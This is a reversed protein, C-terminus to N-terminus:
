SPSEPDFSSLRRAAPASTYVLREFGTIWLAAGLRAFPGCVRCGRRANEWLNEVATSLPTSQMFVRCVAAKECGDLAHQSRSRSAAISAARASCSLPAPRLTSCWISSVASLRHSSTDPRSLPASLSAVNPVQNPSAAPADSVSSANASATGFSKVRSHISPWKRPRIRAATCPRSRARAGSGASADAVVHRAGSGPESPAGSSCGTRRAGSGAALPEILRLYVKSRKTIPEDFRNACAAASATASAGAWAYLGSKM